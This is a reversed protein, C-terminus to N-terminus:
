TNEMEIHSSLLWLFFHGAFQVGAVVTTPKENLVRAAMTRTKVFWKTETAM